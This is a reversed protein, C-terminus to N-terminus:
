CHHRHRRRLGSKGRRAVFTTDAAVKSTGLIVALNLSTLALVAGATTATATFRAAVTASGPLTKLTAVTSLGAVGDGHAGMGRHIAIDVTAWNAVAVIVLRRARPGPGPIPGIRGAQLALLYYDVSGKRTTAVTRRRRCHAVSEFEHSRGNGITKHEMLRKRSHGVERVLRIISM